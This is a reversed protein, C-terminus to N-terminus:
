HLHLKKPKALKKFDEYSMQILESHSGSSFIVNEQDQQELVDDIYTDIDYLNGFPPEAGTECGPFQDEFEWENALEVKKAKLLKKLLELNIKLNSPEIVMALRGDIKVIVPKILQKGSVHAQAAIEQSTFAPNHKIINYKVNQKKLYEKINPQTRM